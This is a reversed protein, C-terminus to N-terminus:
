IRGIMGLRRQGAAGALMEELRTTTGRRLIEEIKDVNKGFFKPDKGQADKLQNVNTILVPYSNLISAQKRYM